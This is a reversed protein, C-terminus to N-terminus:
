GTSRFLPFGVDCYGLRLPYANGLDDFVTFNNPRYRLLTVQSNWNQVTLNFYLMNESTRFDPEMVIEFNNFAVAKGASEAKPLSTLMLPRTIETPSSNRHRSSNQNLQSTITLLLFFTFFIALVFWLGLLNKKRSSQYQAASDDLFERPTDSIPIESSLRSYSGDEPYFDTGCFQCVFGEQHEMRSVPAGCAPCTSKMLKGTM